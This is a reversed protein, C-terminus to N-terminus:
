EWESYSGDHDDNEDYDSYDYNKNYKQEPNFENDKMLDIEKWCEEMYTDFM